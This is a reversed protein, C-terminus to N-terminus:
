PRHGGAGGSAPSVSIRADDRGAGVIMSPRAIVGPVGARPLSAFPRSRPSFANLMSSATPSTFFRAASACSNRFSAGFSAEAAPAVSAGVSERWWEGERLARRLGLAPHRLALVGVDLPRAFLGALDGAQEYGQIPTFILEISWKTAIGEAELPNALGLGCVVLDPQEERCRDLQNEVHQGESLRVGAPATTVALAAPAEPAETDEGRYVVLNRIHLLGQQGPTPSGFFRIGDYSTDARVISDMSGGNYRFRDCRYVIPHWSDDVWAYSLATTNDQAKADFMNLPVRQVGGTGRAIFAVKLGM